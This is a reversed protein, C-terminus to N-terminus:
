LCDYLHIYISKTVHHMGLQTDRRYLYIAMISLRRRRLLSGVFNWEPDSGQEMARLILLPRLTRRGAQLSDTIRIYESSAQAHSRSGEFAIVDEHKKFSM